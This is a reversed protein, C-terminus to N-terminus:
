KRWYHSAAAVARVPGPFYSGSSMHNWLKYPNVRENDAFRKISVADVGPAGGNAQVKDM